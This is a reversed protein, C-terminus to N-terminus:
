NFPEECNTFIDILIITISTLNFISGDRKTHKLAISKNKFFYYTNRKAYLMQKKWFIYFMQRFKFQDRKKKRKYFGYLTFYSGLLSM